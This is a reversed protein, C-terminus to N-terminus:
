CMNSRICLMLDLGARLCELRGQLSVRMTQAARNGLLLAHRASKHPHGTEPVTLEATEASLFPYM